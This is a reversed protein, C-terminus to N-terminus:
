LNIREKIIKEMEDVAPEPSDYDNVFLIADNAKALPSIEREMDQRDRELIDALVPKYSVDKGQAMYDNLRRKARVDNSATVFFKVEANPFVVTGIDRGEVVANTNEVIKHQVKRAFERVQPLPSFCSSLNSIAPAYLEKTVDQGNVVFITEKSKNITQEYNINKLLDCVRDVEQPTVNNKNCVYAVARYIAGTNLHLFNLRKALKKAVTSKGSCVTGDIAIIM